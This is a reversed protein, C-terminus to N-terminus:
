PASSHIMSFATLVENSEAEGLSQLLIRLLLKKDEVPMTSCCHAINEFSLHTPIAAYSVPYAPSPTPGLPATPPLPSADQRARMLDHVEEKQAQYSAEIGKWFTCFSESVETEFREEDNKRNKQPPPKTYPKDEDDRMGYKPLVRGERVEENAAFKQVYAHNLLEVYDAMKESTYRCRKLEGWRPNDRQLTFLLKDQNNLNRNLRIAKPM